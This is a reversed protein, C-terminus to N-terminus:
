EFHNKETSFINKKYENLSNLIILIAEKKFNIM